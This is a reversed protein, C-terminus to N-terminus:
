ISYKAHKYYAHQYKQNQTNIYNDSKPQYNNAITQESMFDIKKQLYFFNLQITNENIPTNICGIQNQAEIKKIIMKFQKNQTKFSNKITNIEYLGETYAKPIQFKNTKRNLIFHSPPIFIQPSDGDKFFQDDTMYPCAKKLLKIEKKYQPLSIIGNELEYELLELEQYVVEPSGVRVYINFGAKEFAWWIVEYQYSIDSLYLQEIEQSTYEDNLINQVSLPLEGFPIQENLLIFEGNTNEACLLLKDENKNRKDVVNNHYNIIQQLLNRGIEYPFQNPYLKVAIYGDDYVYLQTESFQLPNTTAPKLKIQIPIENYLSLLIEIPQEKIKEQLKDPYNEDLVDQNKIIVNYIEILENQPIFQGAYNKVLYERIKEDLVNESIKTYEDSFFEYAQKLHIALINAYKIRQKENKNHFSAIAYAMKYFDGDKPIADDMKVLQLFYAFCYDEAIWSYFIIQKKDHDFYFFQGWFESNNDHLWKMTAYNFQYQGYDLSSNGKQSIVRSNTQIGANNGTEVSSVAYMTMLLTLADYKEPFMKEMEMAVYVKNFVVEINDFSSMSILKNTISTHTNGLSDVSTSTIKLTDTYSQMFYPTPNYGFPDDKYYTGKMLTEVFSFFRVQEAISKDSMLKKWKLYIGTQHTLTDTSMNRGQVKDLFESKQDWTPPEVKINKIPNQTSPLLLPAKILTGTSDKKYRKYHSYKPITDNQKMYLTKWTGDIFATTKQYNVITGNEVDSITNQENGNINLFSGSQYMLDPTPTNSVDNQQINTFFSFNVDLLDPTYSLPINCFDNTNKYTYCEQSTLNGTINQEFFESLIYKTIDEEIERTINLGGFKYELDIGIMNTSIHDDIIGTNTLDSNIDNSENRLNAYDHNRSLPIDVGLIRANNHKKDYIMNYIEAQEMTYNDFPIVIIDTAVAIAKSLSTGDQLSDILLGGSWPQHFIAINKQGQMMKAFYNKGSINFNGIIVIRNDVTDKEITNENQSTTIYERTNTINEILNENPITTTKIYEASPTAVIAISKVTTLGLNIINLPM